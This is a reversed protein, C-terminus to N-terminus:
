IYRYTYTYAHIYPAGHFIRDIEVGDMNKGPGAALLKNQRSPWSVRSAGRQSKTPSVPSELKAGSTVSGLMVGVWVGGVWFSAWLLM